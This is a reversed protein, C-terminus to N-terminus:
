PKQVLPLRLVSIKLVGIKNANRETFWINGDPGTTIGWPWSNPTPVPYETIVGNPTIRGIKNGAYETFWINGDHGPAIGQPQSSGTPIDFELIVPGGVSTGIMPTFPFLVAVFGWVVLQRLKM